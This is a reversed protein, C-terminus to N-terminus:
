IFDAIFIQALWALIVINVVLLIQLQMKGSIDVAAIGSSDTKTKLSFSLPVALGLPIILWFPFTQYYVASLFAIVGFLISINKLKEARKKGLLLTTNLLGALEDAKYDRIQNYLQGYVSFLIMGSTLIWIDKVEYSFSTFGAVFLLGSLMLSHSLIDTVPYAKLRVPRWSYLHSLVLTTLGVGFTIKNTGAFFGLALGALVRAIKYAEERSIRGASIPNRKAKKPDRADDEADEIDNIMFAYSVVFINALVVSALKADLVAGNSAAIAAGLVTLPVTFPM